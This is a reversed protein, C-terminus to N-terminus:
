RVAESRILMDGVTLGEPKSAIVDVEAASLSVHRDAADRWPKPSVYSEHAIRWTRGDVERKTWGGETLCQAEEATLVIENM